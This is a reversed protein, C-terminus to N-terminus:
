HTPPQAVGHHNRGTVAPAFSQRHRVLDGGSGRHAQRHVLVTGRQDAPELPWDHVDAYRMLTWVDWDKAAETAVFARSEERLRDWTKWPAAILEPDDAYTWAGRDLTAPTDPVEAAGM